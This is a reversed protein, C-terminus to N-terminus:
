GDWWGPCWGSQAFAGEGDGRELEAIVVIADAGDVNNATVVSVSSNKSDDTSCHVFDM